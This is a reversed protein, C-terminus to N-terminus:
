RISSVVSGYFLEKRKPGAMEFFGGPASSCRDIESPWLGRENCVIASLPLKVGVCFITTAIKGMIVAGIEMQPDKTIINKTWLDDLVFGTRVFCRSRTPRLTASIHTDM